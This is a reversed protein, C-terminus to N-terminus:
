EDVKVASIPWKAHLPILVDTILRRWERWHAHEGGSEYDLRGSFPSARGSVTLEDFRAAAAQAEIKERPPDTDRFTVEFRRRGRTFKKLHGRIPFPLAGLWVRERQVAARVAFAAVTQVLLMLIMAAFGAAPILFDVSRYFDVHPKRPYSEEIWAMVVCTLAIASSFYWAQPTTLGGV